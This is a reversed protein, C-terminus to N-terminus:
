ARTHLSEPDTVDVVPAPANPETPRKGSAEAEARRLRNEHSVARATRVTLPLAVAALVLEPGWRSLDFQYKAMVPGLAVALRECTAPDYIEVLSPGVSTILMAWFQVVDRAEQLYDIAPALPEAPAGAGVFEGGAPSDELQEAAHRLAEAQGNGPSSASASSIM